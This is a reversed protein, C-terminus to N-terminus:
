PPPNPRYEGSVGEGQLNVFHGRKDTLMNKLKSVHCSPSHCEQHKLTKSMVAHGQALMVRQYLCQIDVMPLGSDSLDKRRKDAADISAQHMAKIEKAYADIVKQYACKNMLWVGHGTGLGSAGDCWGLTYAGADAIQQKGQRWVFSTNWKGTMFLDDPMIVAWDSVGPLKAYAGPKEHKSGSVLVKEAQLWLTTM